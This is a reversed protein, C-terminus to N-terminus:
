YCQKRHLFFITQHAIGLNADGIRARVRVPIKSDTLGTCNDGQLETRALSDTWTIMKAELEAREEGMVLLRCEKRCEKQSSAKLDGYYSARLTGLSYDQAERSARMPHVATVDCFCTTAWAPASFGLLILLLLRM